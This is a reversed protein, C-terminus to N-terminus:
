RRSELYSVGEATVNVVFPNDFRAEAILRVFQPPMNQMLEEFRGANRPDVSGFIDRILSVEAGRSRDEDFHLGGDTRSIILKSAGFRQQYEALLELLRRQQPLLTPISSPQPITIDRGAQYVTAGPSRLVDTYQTSHVADVPQNGQKVNAEPTERLTRGTFIVLGVTLLVWVVWATTVLGPLRGILSLLDSLM